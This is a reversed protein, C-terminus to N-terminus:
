MAEMLWHEFDAYEKSQPEDLVWCRLVELLEERQYGQLLLVITRAAEKDPKNWMDPKQHLYFTVFSQWDADQNFWELLEADNRHANM